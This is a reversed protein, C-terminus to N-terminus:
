GNQWAPWTVEFVCGPASDTVRITGRNKEVVKRTIYLGIGSGGQKTSYLFEFVSERAEEPIGPGSDTFSFIATNEDKVGCRVSIGGNEGIAEISNLMLNLFTQTFHSRNGRLICRESVDISFVIKFKKFKAQLMRSLDVLPERALFRESFDVVIDGKAFHNLNELFFGAVDISHGQLDLVEQIDRCVEQEQLKRSYNVLNTNGLSIISFVNRLDHVIGSALKGTLEFRTSEVLAQEQERITINAKLLKGSTRIGERTMEYTFSFCMVIIGYSFISINNFLPNPLFTGIMDYVATIGATLSGFIVLLVERKKQIKKLSSRIFFMPVLILVLLAWLQFLLYTEAERGQWAWGNFVTLKNDIFLNTFITLFGLGVGLVATSRFFYRNIRIKAYDAVILPWYFLAIFLGVHQFRHWFFILSRDLNRAYELSAQGVMYLACGLFLGSAYLYRKRYQFSEEAPYFRDAWIRSLFFIIAFAFTFFAAGYVFASNFSVM